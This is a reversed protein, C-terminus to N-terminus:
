WDTPHNLCLTNVM